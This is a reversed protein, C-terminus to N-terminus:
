KTKAIQERMWAVEGIKLQRGLGRNLQARLPWVGLAILLFTASLMLVLVGLARRALQWFFHSRAARWDLIIVGLLAGFLVFGAVLSDVRESQWSLNAALALLCLSALLRLGFAVFREFRSAFPPAPTVRAFKLRNGALHWRAIELLLAIILGVTGLIQPMPFRLPTGEWWGFSNLGLLVAGVLFFLWALRHARNGLSSLAHPHPPPTRTWRRERTANVFGVPMLWCFLALCGFGVLVSHTPWVEGSILPDLSERNQVGIAVASVMLLWFAFNACSVIRGRAPNPGGFRPAATAMWLAAGAVATFALALLALPAIIALTGWPATLGFQLSADGTQAYDRYLTSASAQTLFNVQSASQPRGIQRAFKAWARVLQSNAATTKQYSAYPYNLSLEDASQYLGFFEKLSQRAINEAVLAVILTSQDRQCLRTASLIGNELAFARPGQGQKKLALARTTALRASQQMPRLQSYRTRAWLAIKQEWATARHRELFEIRARTTALSYDQYSTCNQAREFARLAADDRASAFEFAAEMWPWFVNRSDLRGSARAIQAGRTWRARTASQARQNEGRQRPLDTLGECLLRLQLARIPLDDPFRAAVAEVANQDGLRYAGEAEWATVVSDVPLQRALGHLDDQSFAEGNPEDWQAAAFSRPLERTVPVCLAVLWIAVFVMVGVPIKFHRM